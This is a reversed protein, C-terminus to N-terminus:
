AFAVPKIKLRQANRAMVADLTAVGKADAKEACSLHLADGARLASSSDLAMVAARHFDSPNVPLLKVDNAVLREFRAWAEQAQRSDLQGTRQKIGLASAFEPVCWVASVLEAKTAAYWRAVAASGAENVILAVLASTDVYVV